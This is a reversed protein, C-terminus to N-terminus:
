MQELHEIVAPRELGSRFEFDRAWDQTLEGIPFRRIFEALTIFRSNYVPRLDYIPAWARVPMISSVRVIAPAAAIFLAGRIFSRRDM